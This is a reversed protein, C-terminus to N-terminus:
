RGAKREYEWSHRMWVPVSGTGQCFRCAKIIRRPGDSTLWEDAVEGMNCGPVPCMTSTDEASIDKRMQDLAFTHEGSVGPSTPTDDEDWDISDLQRAM